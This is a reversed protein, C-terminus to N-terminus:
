LCVKIAYFTRGDALRVLVRPLGSAKSAPESAATGKGGPVMTRPRRWRALAVRQMRRSRELSTSRDRAWRRQAGDRADASRQEPTRREWRRRSLYRAAVFNGGRLLQGCARYFEMRVDTVGPTKPTLKGCPPPSRARPMGVAWTLDVTGSVTGAVPM